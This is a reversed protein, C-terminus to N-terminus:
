WLGATVHLAVVPQSEPRGRRTAPGQISNSLTQRYFGEICLHRKIWKFWREVRWSQGYRDAVTLTPLQFDNALLTPRKRIASAGEGGPGRTALCLM